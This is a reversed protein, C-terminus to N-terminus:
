FPPLTRCHKSDTEEVRPCVCVCVCVPRLAPCVRASSISQKLRNLLTSIGIDSQMVHQMRERSEADLPSAANNPANPGPKPPLPLENDVNSVASNPVPASDVRDLTERGEEFSM